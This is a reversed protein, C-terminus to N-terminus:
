GIAFNIIHKLCEPEEIPIFGDNDEDYKYLWREIACPYLGDEVKEIIAYEYLYEHLDTANAKVSSDAYEFDTTYGFCRQAGITGYDDDLDEIMTITYIHM